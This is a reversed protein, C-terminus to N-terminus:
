SRERGATAADREAVGGARGPVPRRRLEGRGREEAARRARARKPGFPTFGDNQRYSMDIEHTLLSPDPVLHVHESPVVAYEVGEQHRFHTERVLLMAADLDAAHVAGAHVLEDGERRRGFVEFRAM